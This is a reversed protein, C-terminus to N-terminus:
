VSKDAVVILYVMVGLLAAAVIAAVIRFSFVYLPSDVFRKQIRFPASTRGCTRATWNLLYDRIWEAKMAYGATILFAAFIGVLLAYRM